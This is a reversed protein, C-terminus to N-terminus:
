ALKQKLIKPPKLDVATCHDFNGNEWQNQQDDNCLAAAVPKSNDVYSIMAM